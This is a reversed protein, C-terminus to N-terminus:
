IASLVAVLSKYRDTTHEIDAQSVGYFRYIDKLIIGMVKKDGSYSISIDQGYTDLEVEVNGQEGKDIIFMHYDSPFEENSISQAINRCEKDQEDIQRQWEKVAQKDDFDEPEDIRRETCFLEPKAQRIRSYRFEMKREEYYPYSDDVQLAGYSKEMYEITEEITHEGPVITKVVKEHKKRYKRSLMYMQFRKFVNKESRGTIFVSTPGDAGGIITVAGASKKM